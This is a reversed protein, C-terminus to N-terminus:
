EVKDLIDLIEKETAENINKIIQINQDAVLGILKKMGHNNIEDNIYMTIIDAAQDITLPFRNFDKLFSNIENM